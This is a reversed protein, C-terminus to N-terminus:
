KLSITICFTALPETIDACADFAKMTLQVHQRKKTKIVMDITESIKEGEECTILVPCHARKHFDASFDKFIFSCKAQRKALLYQTLIGPALDAGVCLAGFYMSNVHNKNRRKFPILICSKSECLSVVRPRVWFILPIRTIGFLWIRLTERWLTQPM